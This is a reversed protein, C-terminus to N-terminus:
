RTDLLGYEVDKGYGFKIFETGAGRMLISRITSKPIMPLDEYIASLKLRGVSLVAKVQEKPDTADAFRTAQLDQRFYRIADRSFVARLGIEKELQGNNSKRHFLGIHSLNEGRVSDGMVQWASRCGNWFYRSGTSRNTNEWGTHHISVVTCGLARVANIYPIAVEDTNIGGGSAQGVSDVIVLGIHNNLVYEYLYQLDGSLTDDMRIYHVRNDPFEVGAGNCLQTLRIEHIERSTEWDLYLVNGYYSARRLGPLFDVGCVLSTGLALTTLSKGAGAEAFVMTHENREIIPEILWDRESLRERRELVTAQRASQLVGSAAIVAQDIRDKWQISQRAELERRLQTKASISLLNIRSPAYLWRWDDGVRRRFSIFCHIGDSRRTVQNLQAQVGVDHWTLSLNGLRDQASEPQPIERDSNSSEIALNSSNETASRHGNRYEIGAEDAMRRLVEDM